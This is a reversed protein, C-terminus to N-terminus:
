QGVPAATHQLWWQWDANNPGGPASQVSHGPWGLGFQIPIKLAPTLWKHMEAHGDAFDMGCNWQHYSGPVDPWYVPNGFSGSGDSVQLYGDNLSCMNEELFVLIADPGWPTLLQNVKSYAKAVSNYTETLGLVQPYVNGVQAQM